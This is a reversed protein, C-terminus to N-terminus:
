RNSWRSEKRATRRSGQTCSVRAKAWLRLRWLRRNWLGPWPVVFRLRLTWRCAALPPKAQPLRGRPGSISECPSRSRTSAAEGLDSTFDQVFKQMSQLSESQLSHLMQVRLASRSPHTLTDTASWPALPRTKKTGQIALLQAPPERDLVRFSAARSACTVNGDPDNGVADNPDRQGELPQMSYEALTKTVRSCGELEKSSSPPTETMSQVFITGAPQLADESKPFKHEEAM